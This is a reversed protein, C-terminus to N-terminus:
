ELREKGAKGWHMTKGFFTLSAGFAPGKRSRGGRMEAFHSQFKEREVRYDSEMRGIDGRLREIENQLRRTEMGLEMRTEEDRERMAKEMEEKLQRMEEEHKKILADYERHLEEGASTQSISKQQIVLEEQIQLPLPHNSLILRAIAQATPLTNDHRAMKASKDLAPKFFLEDRMLEAERANGIQPDVQGWMNTVIIVNKLTTEGCLRRFMRFNKASVGGMRFDSIRHIYLLGALTSGEKYSTELFAAITKLIDTDSRTTDDFGPTDILVVRRDDLYFTGGLQVESTCSRLGTSVKLNSGSILNIFTTKGSGTAGM